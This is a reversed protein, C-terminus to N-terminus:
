CSESAQTGRWALGYFVGPMPEDWHVSVHGAAPLGAIGGSVITLDQQGDGCVWALLDGAAQAWIREPVTDTFYASITLRTPRLHQPLQYLFAPLFPEPNPNAWQRMAGGSQAEGEAVVQIRGNEVAVAVLLHQAGVQAAGTLLRTVLENLKENEWNEITDPGRDVVEQAGFNERRTTLNGPERVGIAYANKLALSKLDNGLSIVAADFREVLAAEPPDGLATRLSPSALLKPLTRGDDRRLRQLERRLATPEVAVAHPEM